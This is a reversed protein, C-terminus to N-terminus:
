GQRNGKLDFCFVSFFEARRMEASACWLRAGTLEARVAFDSAGLGPQELSLVVM